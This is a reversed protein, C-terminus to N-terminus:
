TVYSVKLQEIEHALEQIAAALIPIVHGKELCYYGNDDVEVMEPLQTLFSQASFGYQRGPTGDKLEYTIALLSNVKAIAQQIPEINKKLRVDSSPPTNTLYYPASGNSVSYLTNRGTGSNQGFGLQQGAYISRITGFNKNAGIWDTAYRFLSGGDGCAIEVGDGLYITTDGNPIRVQGNSVYIADGWTSDNSIYTTAWTISKNIFRAAGGDYNQLHQGCMLLTKDVDRKGYSGVLVGADYILLENIANSLELRTSSASTRILQGTISGGSLRDCSISGVTINSADINRIEGGGLGGGGGDIYNIYIGNSAVSDASTNGSTDYSALKYYYTTEYALSYTDTKRTADGRWIETYTGGSSTSRKLIYGALDPYTVKSLATWTVDITKGTGQSAVPADPVGPADPDSAPTYSNIKAFNVDEVGAIGSLANSNEAWALFIYDSKGAILGSLTAIYYEGSPQGEMLATGDSVGFYVKSWNSGPPRCQLSYWATQMGTEGTNVGYATITFETPALPLTNAYDPFYGSGDQPETGTTYDYVAENYELLSLQNADAERQVGTIIWTKLGSWLPTGGVAILEGVNHQVNHVTVTARRNYQWRLTRYCHFRDAPTFDRVMPLEYAREGDLGDVISRTLTHQLEAPNSVNPRYSVKITDPYSERSYDDVSILDGENEYYTGAVSSAVDQLIEYEGADNRFLQGRLITLLNEVISRVSAPSKNYGYGYSVTMNEADAVAEADALSRANMSLGAWTMIRSLETAANQSRTSDYVDCQILYPQFSFDLQHTAFTLTVLDFDGCDLEGVTYDATDVISGEGRYVAPITITHGTPKPCVGYIFPGAGSNDDVPIATLKLGYGVVEPIVVGIDGTLIDPFYDNKEYKRAPYEKEMMKDDFDSTNLSLFVGSRNWGTVLMNRSFIVEDNTGDHYHRRTILSITATSGLWDGDYAALSLDADEVDVSLSDRTLIQYEDGVDDSPVMWDALKDEYWHGYRLEPQTSWYLTTGDVVVLATCIYDRRALIKGLAGPSLNDAVNAAVNGPSGADATLRAPNAPTGADVVDVDSM